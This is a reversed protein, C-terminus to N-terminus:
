IQWKRAFIVNELNKLLKLRRLSQQLICQNQVSQLYSMRWTNSFCLFYPCHAKRWTETYCQLDSMRWTNRHFHPDPYKLTLPSGKCLLCGRPKVPETLLARGPCPVPTQASTVASVPSVCRDPDSLVVCISVGCVLSLVCILHVCPAHKILIEGRDYESSKSNDPRDDLSLLM